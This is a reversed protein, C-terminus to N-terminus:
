RKAQIHAAAIEADETIIVPPLVTPIQRKPPIVAETPETMMLVIHIARHTQKVQVPQKVITMTQIGIAHIAQWHTQIMILEQRHTLIAHQEQVAEQAMIVHQEQYLGQRLATTM